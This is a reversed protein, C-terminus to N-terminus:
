AAAAVARPKATEATEAAEIIRLYAALQKNAAEREAPPIRRAKVTGRMIDVDLGGERAKKYVASVQLAIMDRQSHLAEVSAGPRWCM